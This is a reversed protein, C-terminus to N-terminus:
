QQALARECVTQALQVDGAFAWPEKMFHVDWYARLVRKGFIRQKWKPADYLLAERLSGNWLGASRRRELERFPSDSALFFSYSLRNGSLTVMRTPDTAYAAISRLHSVRATVSKMPGLMAKMAAVRHRGNGTIFYFGAFEELVIGNPTRYDFEGAKILQAFSWISGCGPAVDWGNEAGARFGLIRNLPVSEVTTSSHAGTVYQLFVSTRIFPLERLRANFTTEDPVEM